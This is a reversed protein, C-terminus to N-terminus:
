LQLAPRLTFPTSYDYRLGFNLTLRASVQIDDQVHAGLDKNIVSYPGNTQTRHSGSAPNGLLFSAFAYGANASTRLPDPGQTFAPSFSFTPTPNIIDANQRPVGFLGGFKFTHVGHVKTFNIRSGRWASGPEKAWVWRRQPM